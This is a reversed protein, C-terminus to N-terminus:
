KGKEKHEKEEKEFTGILEDGNENYEDIFVYKDKPYKM